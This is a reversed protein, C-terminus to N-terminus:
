EEAGLLEELNGNVGIYSWLKTYLTKLPKRPVVKLAIENALAESQLYPPHSFIWIHGIEHALAAVVEEEDLKEFFAAEIEIRYGEGNLFPEVSVIRDNEPVIVVQVRKRIELAEVMGAAIKELRANRVIPVTRSSDTEARLGTTCLFLAIFVFVRQASVEILKPM